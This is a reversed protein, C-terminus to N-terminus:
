NEKTITAPQEGNIPAVIEKMGGRRFGRLYTQVFGYARAETDVHEAIVEGEYTPVDPNKDDAKLIPRSTDVMFVKGIQPHYEFVFRPFGPAGIKRIGVGAPALNPTIIASM